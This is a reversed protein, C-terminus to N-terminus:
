AGKPERHPHVAPPDSAPFSEELGEDLREDLDKEDDVPGKPRPPDAPTKGTM